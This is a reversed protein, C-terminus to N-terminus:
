YSAGLVSIGKSLALTLADLYLVLNTWSKNILLDNYIFSQPSAHYRYSISIGHLIRGKTTTCYHHCNTTTSQLQWIYVIKLSLQLMMLLPPLKILFDPGIAHLLLQLCCASTMTCAKTSDHLDYNCWLEYVGFSFSTLHLVCTSHIRLPVKKQSRSYRHKELTM